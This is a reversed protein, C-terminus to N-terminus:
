RVISPPRPGHSIMRVMSADPKHETDIVAIIKQVLRIYYVVTQIIKIQAQKQLQEISKLTM